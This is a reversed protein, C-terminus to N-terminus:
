LLLAIGIALPYVHALIPPSLPGGRLAIFGLALVTGLAVGAWGLWAPAIGTSILAGGILVWSGYASLMHFVHITGAWRHWSEFGVPVRGTKRTEDAAGEQVTLRFILAVLWLVAGLGFLGLAMISLTREGNALLLAALLAVGLTTVTVGLCMWTHIWRLRRRDEAMAALAAPLEQQYLAPKWFVAGVLFALFGAILVVGAWKVDTM